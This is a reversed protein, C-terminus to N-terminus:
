VSGIQTSIVAMDMFAAKPAATARFRRNVSKATSMAPTM